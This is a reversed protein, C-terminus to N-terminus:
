NRRSELLNKDDDEDSSEQVKKVKPEDITLRRKQNVLKSKQEAIHLNIM